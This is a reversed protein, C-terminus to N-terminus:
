EPIAKFNYDNGLCTMNGAPVNELKAFLAYSLCWNEKNDIINDNVCDGIISPDRKLAKYCYKQDPALIDQPTKNFYTKTVLTGNPAGIANTFPDGSNLVGNMDTSSNGTQPYFKMDVRYQELASQIAKIDARRKIDRSDKLFTSYTVVGIGTLIAIISITVLLEILTFGSRKPM